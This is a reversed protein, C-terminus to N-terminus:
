PLAWTCGQRGPRVCALALTWRVPAPGRTPSGRLRLGGAARAHSVRPTCRSHPARTGWGTDTNATFALAVKLHDYLPFYMSWFVPVTLIAPQFGRFWGIIGEEKRIRALTSVIGRYVPLSANGLAGQVQLRTRAVDLPSFIACCVVGASAGSLAKKWSSPGPSLDAVGPADEGEEM